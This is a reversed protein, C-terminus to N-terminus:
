RALLLALGFAMANPKATEPLESLSGRAAMPTRDGVDGQDDAVLRLCEGEVDALEAKRGATGGCSPHGRAVAARSFIWCRSKGTGINSIRQEMSDSSRSMRDERDRAAYHM